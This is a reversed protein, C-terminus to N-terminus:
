TRDPAREHRRGNPRRGPRPLPRAHTPRDDDDPGLPPVLALSLDDVQQRLPRLRHDAELPSVVGPVGEDHTALLRHEVDDGGADQVRPDDTEDPVPNHQRWGSQHALDLPHLRAPDRHGFPEDQAFRAREDERVVDPEVLRAFGMPGAPRDSGGAAADAGGVLVLDRPARDPHAVDEVGLPEAGLDLLDEVKVIEDELAVVTGLGNGGIRDTVLGEARRVHDEGEDVVDALPKMLEPLLTRVDEEFARLPAEEVDVM